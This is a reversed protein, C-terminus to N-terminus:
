HRYGPKDRGGFYVGLLIKFDPMDGIGYRAELSYRHSDGLPLTIGGLVSIGIETDSNGSKYKFLALSPGLGIYLDSNSRPLALSVRFDANVLVSTLGDGFGVDASPTFRVFKWYGLMSQLGITFQNPNSSYGARAGFSWGPDQDAAFISSFGFSFLTLFLAM